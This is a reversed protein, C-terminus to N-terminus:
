FPFHVLTRRNWVDKEDAGGMLIGKLEFQSAPIDVVPHNGEPYVAEFFSAVNLGDGIMLHCDEAEECGDVVCFAFDVVFSVKFFSHSYSHGASDEGTLYTMDLPYPFVFVYDYLYFADAGDEEGEDM